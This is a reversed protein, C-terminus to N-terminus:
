YTILEYLDSKGVLEKPLQRCLLFLNRKTTKILELFQYEKGRKVMGYFVEFRPLIVTDFELYDLIESFTDIHVNEIGRDSFDTSFSTRFESIIEEYSSIMHKSPLLVLLNTTSPTESIIEKLIEREKISDVGNIVIPKLTATAKAKSDDICLHPYIGKVFQLLERSNRYEAQNLHYQHYNTTICEYNTYYTRKENLTICVKSAFSDFVDIEAQKANDYELVYLNDVKIPNVLFADIVMISEESLSLDQYKLIQTVIKVTLKNQTLLITKQGRNADEIFKWLIVTFTDKVCGRLEMSDYEYVVALQDPTLDVIQPIRFQYPMIHFLSPM